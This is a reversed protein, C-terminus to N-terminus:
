SLPQFRENGELLLLLHWKEIVLCLIGKHNQLNEMMEKWKREAAGYFGSQHALFDQMRVYNNKWTVDTHRPFFSQMM